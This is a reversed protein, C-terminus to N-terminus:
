PRTGGSASKTPVSTTSPSTDLLYGLFLNIKRRSPLPTLGPARVPTENKKSTSSTFNLDMGLMPNLKQPQPLPASTARGFAKKKLTFRESHTPVNGAARERSSQGRNGLKYSGTQQFIGWTQDISPRTTGCKPKSADSARRFRTPLADSARRFRTPVADSNVSDSGLRFRTPFINAGSHAEM